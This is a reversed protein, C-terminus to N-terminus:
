LAPAPLRGDVLFGALPFHFVETTESSYFRVGDARTECLWNQRNGPRKSALAAPAFLAVNIREGPARASVYEFAEVGAARM